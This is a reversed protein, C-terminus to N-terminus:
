WGGQYQKDLLRLFEKDRRWARRVAARLFLDVPYGFIEELDARANMGLKRIMEGRSGIIIGKQSESEVYIIANIRARERTEDFVLEEVLVCSAHPIEERLNQFIKERIIEAIRHRQTQDTYYDGPYLREGPPLLAALARSARLVDKRNLASIAFIDRVDVVGRIESARQEFIETSALDLKNCAIIAQSASERLADLLHAEEEGFPRALDLLCLVADAGAIAERALNYLKRNYTRESRHMGPTDVFVIQTDAENHIARICDRTTQPVPSVISVKNGCLTNLFSSKGCSPRGVVAVFGVHAIAGSADTDLSSM